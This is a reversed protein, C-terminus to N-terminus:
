NRARFFKDLKQFTVKSAQEVLTFDLYSFWAGRNTSYSFCGNGKYSTEVIIHIEGVKWRTGVYKVVDGIQFRIKDM